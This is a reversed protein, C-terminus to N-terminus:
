KILSIKDTNIRVVDSVDSLLQMDVSINQQKFDYVARMYM